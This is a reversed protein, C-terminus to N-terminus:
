ANRTGKGASKKRAGAPPSKDAEQRDREQLWRQVKPVLEKQWKSSVFIGIHGTDLCIDAVDRSGVRRCLPECAEPPVLHDYRGYINLLPMTIRSLDVRKGALEMRSNIFLNKQYCDRIYQRFTEGPMDPSDFIWKEMRLFNEIFDTRELNELFGVYKDILLRAPNLLLMSLNMLDGPINGYTDVLRDVDIEKLWIHM